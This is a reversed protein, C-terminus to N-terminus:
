RSLYDVDETITNLVFENTGRKINYRYYNSRKTTDNQHNINGTVIAARYIEGADTMDSYVFEHQRNRYQGCQTQDQPRVYNGPLGLSIKRYAGWEKSNDNRWRHLFVPEFTYDIAENEYMKYTKGSNRSGILRINWQEIYLFCGGRYAEWQGSDADWKALILWEKKQIHWALTIAPWTQENVEINASPFHLVYFNQGKFAMMFGYADDVREMEELPITIPGDIVTSNGGTNEIIARRGGVKSLYRVSEGDYVPSYKALTGFSSLRGRNVEFPNAPNGGLYTVELTEPGINYIFQSDVMLLTQLRDPKSENNYVEWLAYSNTKDDSYVVDGAIDPGNAIMFGGHYILSTVNTPSNGGLATMAGGDIRYISSDAAVFINASDECFTPPVGATLGSGTLEVRVGNNAYQAWVRGNSVTLRTEFASSFYEFTNVGVGTETDDYEEVGPFTHIGSARDLWMNYYAVAVGDHATTADIDLNTGKGIPLPILPM